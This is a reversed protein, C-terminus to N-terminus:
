WVLCFDGGIEFALRAGWSKLLSVAPTPDSADGTRGRHQPKQEVIICPRERRITAEGGILVPLEFGECDIKLFDIERLDFEDLRAVTAEIEGADDIHCDGSSGDVAHLRCVGSEAGLAFPELRTIGPPKFQAMNATWCARHEPHPEFATVKAFIEAMPRTWLGCHAGVDVFHRRGKFLPLARQWKHMQYTPGGRFTPSTQMYHQLHQEHDPLWFGMHQKM